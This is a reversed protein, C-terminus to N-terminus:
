RTNIQRQNDSAHKTKIIFDGNFEIFPIDRVQVQGVKSALTKLENEDAIKFEWLKLFSNGKDCLMNKSENMKHSVVDNYDQNIKWLEKIHIGTEDVGELVKGM